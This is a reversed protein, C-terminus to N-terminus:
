IIIDIIKVNMVNPNELLDLLCGLTHRKVKYSNEELLDLLYYVGQEEIFVDEFNLNGCITGWICEVVALILTEHELPDSSLYRVYSSYYYYKRYFHFSM